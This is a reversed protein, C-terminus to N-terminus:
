DTWDESCAFWNHNVHFIWGASTWYSHIWSKLTILIIKIKTEANECPMHTINASSTESINTPEIKLDLSINYNCNNRKVQLHLRTLTGFRRWRVEDVHQTFFCFGFFFRVRNQKNNFLHEIYRSSLPSPSVHSTTRNGTLAFSKHKRIKLSQCLRTAPKREQPVQSRTVAYESRSKVFPSGEKMKLTLRGPGVSMQFQLSQTGEFRRYKIVRHRMTM